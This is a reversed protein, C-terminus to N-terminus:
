AYSTLSVYSFRLSCPLTLCSVRADLQHFARIILIIYFPASLRTMIWQKPKWLPVELVASGLRVTKAELIASGLLIRWRSEDKEDDKSKKGKRSAVKTKPAMTCAASTSKSNLASQEYWSQYSLRFICRCTLLYKHRVKITSTVHTTKTHRVECTRYYYEGRM